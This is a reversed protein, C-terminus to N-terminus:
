VPRVLAFGWFGNELGAWPTHGPRTLQKSRPSSAKWHLCRTAFSHSLSTSASKWTAAIRIAMASPRQMWVAQCASASWLAACRACACSSSIMRRVPSSSFSRPEPEPPDLEGRSKLSSRSAGGRSQFGSPSTSARRRRFPLPDTPTSLAGLAVEGGTVM